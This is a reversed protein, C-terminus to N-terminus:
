EVGNPMYAAIFGTGRGFLNLPLKAHRVGRCLTRHMFEAPPHLCRVAQNVPFNLYIFRPHMAVRKLAGTSPPPIAVIGPACALCYKAYQLAAADYLDPMHRICVAAKQHFEEVLIHLVSRCHM